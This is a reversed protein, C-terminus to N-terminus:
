AALADGAEQESAFQLLYVDDMVGIVADGDLISADDTKVLLRTSAAPENETLEEKGEEKSEEEPDEAEETAEETIEEPIVEPEETKDAVTDVPEEVAPEAPLNEAPM